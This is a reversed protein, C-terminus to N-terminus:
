SIKKLVKTNHYYYFRSLSILLTYYKVNPTDLNFIVNSECYKLINFLFKSHM